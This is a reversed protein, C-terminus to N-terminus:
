RHEGMRQALMTRARFLYSKVTGEAVGLMEAIEPMTHGLWYHAHVVFRYVDPLRMVADRIAEDGEAPRQQRETEAYRRDREGRSRMSRYSDVALNYALRYLWTSFASEFRFAHLATACKVFVDQVVDDALTRGDVGLTAAVVSRVRRRHREVLVAFAEDDGHKTFRLILDAEDM